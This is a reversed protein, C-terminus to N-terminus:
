EVEREEITFGVFANALDIFGIPKWCDTERSFCEGTKPNYFLDGAIGMEYTPHMDGVFLKFCNIDRTTCVKSKLCLGYEKPM